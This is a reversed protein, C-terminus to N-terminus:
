DMTRLRKDRGQADQDEGRRGDGASGEVARITVPIGDLVSTGSVHDYRREDALDNMSVGAHRSAVSLKAGPRDHGWGYPMSVVGPMMEDSVEVVARIQGVRSTIEVQRGAGLGLGAADRSHMMLTCRDHRKADPATMVSGKSIIPNAGMIVLHDTREIDPIPLPAQNGYLLMSVLTCLM